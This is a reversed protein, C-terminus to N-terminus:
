AAKYAVTYLDSDASSRKAKVTAGPMIPVVSDSTHITLNFSDM